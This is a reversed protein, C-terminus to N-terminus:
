ARECALAYLGALIFVGFGLGLYIVDFMAIDKTLSNALIRRFGTLNGHPTTPAPTFVAYLRTPRGSLHPARSQM